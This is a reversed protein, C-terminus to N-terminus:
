DNTKNFESVLAFFLAQEEKAGNVRVCVSKEPTHLLIDLLGWFSSRLYVFISKDKMMRNVKKVFKDRDKVKYYISKFFIYDTTKDHEFLMIESTTWNLCDYIYPIHNELCYTHILPDLEEVEKCGHIKELLVKLHENKTM